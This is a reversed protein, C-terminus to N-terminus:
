LFLKVSVNINNDIKPVIIQVSDLTNTTTTVKTLNHVIISGCEPTLNVTNSTYRLTLTDAPSVNDIKIVYSISDKDILPSLGFIFTSVDIRDKYIFNPDDLINISLSNVKTEIFNNGQKSFFVGRFNINKSLECITYQDECGTLTLIVGIFITIHKLFYKM